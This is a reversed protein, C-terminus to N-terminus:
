KWTEEPYVGFSRKYHERRKSETKKRKTEKEEWVEGDTM